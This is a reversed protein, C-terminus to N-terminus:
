VDSRARRLTQRQIPRVSGARPCAYAPIARGGAALHRVRGGGNTASRVRRRRPHAPLGSAWADRDDGIARLVHRALFRFFTMPLAIQDFSAQKDYLGIWTLTVAVGIFNLCSVLRVDVSKCLEHVIAAVPAAFLLMSMYVLGALDSSYGLLLQLQGVFLSLTGQIILFGAMSCIVAVAYNRNGFLRLDLAPHREGLSWIIFIPLAVIVIVLATALIPSAFWDFDNGMNFITQLGFLIAALLLFGVVDFRPFRRRFGRGYYLSIVVGAALLTVPINSYFLM